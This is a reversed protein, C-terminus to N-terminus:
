RVWAFAEWNGPYGVLATKESKTPGTQDKNAPDVQWCHGYGDEEECSVWTGWPTTGGACNDVTGQLVPYYDIVEHNADFELVYVGGDFEGDEYNGEESNSVYYFGGDDKMIIAGGDASDHWPLESESGDAFVVPDGQYAIPKGYLGNAVIVRDGNKSHPLVPNLSGIPAFIRYRKPM